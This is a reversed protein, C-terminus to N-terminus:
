MKETPNIRVIAEIIWTGKLLEALRLLDEKVFKSAFHILKNM